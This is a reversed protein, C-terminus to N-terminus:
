GLANRHYTLSCIYQSSKSCTKPAYKDSAGYTEGWKKPLPSHKRQRAVTSGESGSRVLRGRGGEASVVCACRIVVTATGFGLV